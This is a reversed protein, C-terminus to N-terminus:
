SSPVYAESIRGEPVPEDYVEPNLVNPPYEGRALSLVAETVLERVRRGASVTANGLIHPTLLADEQDLELLPNDEVEPEDEFVDVVAGAIWGERVAEALDDDPYVGGRAANILFATEKMRRFDAEGLMHHTEDTLPVHISLFDSTELLEELSVLEVGLDAARRAEVYPDHAKLEPGFTGLYEALRRGIQGLGLIGVTSDALELAPPEGRGEFGRERVCVNHAYLGRACSIMMGIVGEVVADRPGQPAHAVAIGHETAARVGLNDFGASPRMVFELDPGVESFAEAPLAPRYGVYADVDQLDAPALTRGEEESLFRPALGPENTLEDSEFRSSLWVRLPEAM